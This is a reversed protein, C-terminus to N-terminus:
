SVDKFAIESLQVQFNEFIIRVQKNQTNINLIYSDFVVSTNFQLHMIYGIHMLLHVPVKGIDNLITYTVNEVHHRYTKKTNKDFM